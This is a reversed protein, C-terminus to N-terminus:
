RAHCRHGETKGAWQGPLALGYLAVVSWHHLATLTSGAPSRHHGALAVLPWPVACAPCVAVCIVEAAREAARNAARCHPDGAAHMTGWALARLKRVSATRWTVLAPMSRRREGSSGDM